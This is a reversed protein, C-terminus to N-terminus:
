TEYVAEKVDLKYRDAFYVNFTAINLRRYLRM